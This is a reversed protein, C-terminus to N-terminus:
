SEYRLEAIHIVNKTNKKLGKLFIDLYVVQRLCAM